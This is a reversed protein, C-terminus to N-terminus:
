NLVHLLHLNSGQTLFIGQILFHLRDWYEQRFFEMFLPAQHAITWPNAFLWVHSCVCVCLCVRGERIITFYTLHRVIVPILLSASALTLHAARSSIFIFCLNPFNKNYKLASCLYIRYEILTMDLSPGLCVGTPTPQIFQLTVNEDASIMISPFNGNVLCM